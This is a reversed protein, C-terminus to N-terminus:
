VGGCKRANHGVRDCKSCRQRTRTGITPVSGAVLPRRGVGRSYPEAEPLPRLRDLKSDAARRIQLLGRVEVQRIRERSLNILLGLLDRDTGGRDAVDLACTETMEHPEIDPFNLKISGSSPDVDLYLHWRCSVWPCPGEGNMCDGRVTPRLEALHTPPNLLAGLRLDERTLRKRAITKPRPRERTRYRRKVNGV